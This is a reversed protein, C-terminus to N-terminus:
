RSQNCEVPTATQTIENLLNKYSHLINRVSEMCIVKPNYELQIYRGSPSTGVTCTLAFPYRDVVYAGLFRLGSEEPIQKANWFNLYRFASYFLEDGGNEAILQALPYSAYPQIDVLDKQVIDAQQLLPLKDRSVVPAINWFLGVASLPDALYESRGNSIVGTTVLLEGSWQRLLELWAALLLAQMSVAHERGLRELAANQESPLESIIIPDNTEDLGPLVFDPLQPFEVGSLYSRWFQAVQEAGGVAREFNVFEHYTRNPNGLDPPRGSKTSAYAELLQNLFIQHGWGDMIAHHCSFLLSFQTDSRLFVVIRFLPVDINDLDFLDARDALIQEAVYSEQAFRDLHSIDTTLMKWPLAKRVCQLPVPGKFSFVTRLVPHREIVAKFAAKLAELSFGPDELHFCEQVHYIGESGQNESYKQLVFTQIKSIPYFDDVDSPLSSIDIAAPLLAEPIGNPFLECRHEQQLAKRLNRITQHRLIDMARLTIGYRRAEHVVQVVRLSDGGLAFYNNDVNVAEKGLVKRWVALLNEETEDLPTGASHLGQEAAPPLGQRDIKGNSTLKFRDVCTFVNPVMYSPLFELTFRRLEQPPVKEQGVAVWAALLKGGNQDPVVAAIAAHVHPHRCLTAEIESLEIRYGRLKIQGDRRGLFELTGDARYRARDGTMYMRAGPASQFPDPLFREATLDAAGVYGRGVHNGGIYLDGTVWASVPRFFPDLV